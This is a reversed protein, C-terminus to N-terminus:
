ILEYMAKQVFQNLPLTARFCDLVYGLLDPSTALSADFPHTMTYHKYKLLDIHPWDKPYGKPATKLKGFDWLGDPFWQQFNKSSLIAQFDEINYFIEQRIANLAEPEPMFIGGGMFCGETPDADLQIYYGPMGTRRVGGTPLFFSVHTKYPRKDPSFRVDRYIRYMARTPDPHGITPDFKVVEDIAAQTFALFDRRIDDWRSKNSLFWERNNNQMLEQLFPMTDNHLKM